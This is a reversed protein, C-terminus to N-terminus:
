SIYPFANRVLKMEGNLDAIVDFRMPVEGMGHKMRYVDSTRCIKRQKKYDVAEEPLGFRESKRYKVEIFVLEGNERGILDIEGQRTRFNKELIVFGLGELYEKAKEEHISGTERKNQM